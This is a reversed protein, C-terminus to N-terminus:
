AAEAYVPELPWEEAAECLPSGIYANSNSVGHDVDVSSSGAHAGYGADGGRLVLRFGSTSSDKYFYDCHYTSATAGGGVQTPFNELHDYSVAKIYGESDPSRSYEVMGAKNGITWSGYISPAVLHTRTLDENCEVFEDDQHRWLYAFPNKLGFFVPVPATYITNDESDKVEYNVVGCGDGLEIGVSTPLFPNYSNHNNWATSNWNSVGSGLGGQHLGDADLNSNYTEQINQTGFIIEFLIKVVASHRMTGCLWGEGNRRAAARMAECTMGTVATGRLTRYTGDWASNNTGGRYKEDQNIFSVLTNTDRDISAFGHASMSAVPIYYNYQGPIPRLSIEKYLLGGAKYIALYFPVGWGWQYHGMSGDLKALEGTEFLYHNTAALKRRSHDNKVLYCGLKLAQALERGFEVNGTWSAAAPTSLSENWVRGFRPAISYNVADQLDMSEARGNDTNHVVILKKQKNLDSSPLDDIQMGSDWGTIMERLKLIEADTLQEAM